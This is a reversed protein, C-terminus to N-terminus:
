PNPYEPKLSALFDDSIVSFFARKEAAHAEEILENVTGSRGDRFTDVDIVSFRHGNQDSEVYLVRSTYDGDPVMMKLELGSTEIAEGQQELSLSLSSRLWGDFRNIYRIGVREHRLRPYSSQLFDLLRNFRESFEGWGVYPRRTVLGLMRSSLLVLDGNESELRYIPKYKLNPDSSRIDFPIQAYAPKEHNSFDGRFHSFFSAFVLDEEDVHEFRVEIIAEEIHSDDVKSPIADRLKM